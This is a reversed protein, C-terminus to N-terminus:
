LPENATKNNFFSFNQFFNKWEIEKRYFKQGYNFFCFIQFTSLIGMVSLWLGEPGFIKIIFGTLFLGCINGLLAFRAFASNVALRQTPKYKENILVVAPLKIGILSGFM